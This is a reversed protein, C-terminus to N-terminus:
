HTHQVTELLVINNLLNILSEVGNENMGLAYVARMKVYEDKDEDSLLTILPQVAKENMKLAYAAYKKVDDDEDEDNLVTILPEVAKENGIKGLAYTAMRKLYKDKDKLWSLLEELAKEYSRGIEILVTGYLEIEPYSKWWEIVGEIIDDVMLHEIADCEGLCRGALMLQTQFIDDREGMIAEILVMPEDLLGALIIITEHWDYDWLYKKVLAMGTEKDDEIQYKLSLATFYEQFTRHLFLYDSKDPNLKQLIGDKDSLETILQNAKDDLNTTNEQLLYDKIKKKLARISFVETGKTSFQYALAMLIEEKTEIEAENSAMRNNDVCWKRLMYDVAQEYIQGRRAPLKLKDEQYLSCILSLLLPNQALGSIQPREKLAKILDSANVSSDKLHDKAHNFWRTIYEETQKQTFPVIEMEKGQDILRGGYGVIRSTAIIPCSCNKVFTNLKEILKTRKELPVEDLADLLLLCNGAELQKEIFENLFSSVTDNEQHQDDSLRRLEQDTPQITEDIINLLLNGNPARDAVKIIGKIHLGTAYKIKDESYRIFQPFGLCDFNITEASNADPLNGFAVSECNDIAEPLEVLAIDINDPAKWIVKATIDQKNLYDFEERFRVKCTIDSHDFLHRCTLILSGGIRYGTGYNPAVIEVAYSPTFSQIPNM